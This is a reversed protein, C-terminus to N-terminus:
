ILFVGVHMPFVCVFRYTIIRGCFCGWMCPSSQRGDRDEACRALFVGVHMPFVIAVQVTQLAKISVGGRAHPLSEVILSYLFMILFVGVHMPFVECSHRITYSKYSVGGRAHPLCAMSLTTKIQILFVGVHMPFVTYLPTTKFHSYFCGWTCPSSWIACLVHSKKSSVGGRAHPLRPIWYLSNKSFPFVGVHMPFVYQSPILNNYKLFCGWTCPSSLGYIYLETLTMSVGGRAHPLRQNTAGTTPSTLFVGVHM